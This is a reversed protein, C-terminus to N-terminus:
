SLKNLVFCIKIMDLTQREQKGKQLFLAGSSSAALQASMKMVRQKPSFKIRM